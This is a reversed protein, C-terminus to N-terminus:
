TPAAAKALRDLTADLAARQANYCGAEAHVRVAAENLGGPTQEAVLHALGAGDSKAASDASICRFFAGSYAAAAGDSIGPQRRARRNKVPQSTDTLIHCLLVGLLNRSFFPCSQPTPVMVPRTM